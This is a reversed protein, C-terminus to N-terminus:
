GGGRRVIARWAHPHEGEMRAIFRAPAIDEITWGERFAARIEDRTVRRPGVDGPTHESFVLMVYVGGPAVVGALAEVYLARDADSFVHFVGADIVTRFRRPSPPLKLVDAVEFRAELGRARAKERALEVAKPVFDVGWAESGRAAFLLAHEGTGCGIDLVPGELRDAVEAIAPQPHGVDWPPEGEYAAHFREPSPGQPSAPPSSQSASEPPTPGPGPM